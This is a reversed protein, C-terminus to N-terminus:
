SAKYCILIRKCRGLGLSPELLGGTLGKFARSCGEWDGGGSWIGKEELEPKWSQEQAKRWIYANWCMEATLCAGLYIGLVLSSCCTVLQEASLPPLLFPPRYHVKSSCAPRDSWSVTLVTVKLNRVLAAGGSLFHKARRFRLSASFFFLSAHPTGARLVQGRPRM